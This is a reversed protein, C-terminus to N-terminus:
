NETLPFFDSFLTNAYDTKNAVWEIENFHDYLVVKSDSVAKVTQKSGDCAYYVMDGKELSDRDYDISYDIAIHQPLQMTQIHTPPM